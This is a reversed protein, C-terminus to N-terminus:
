YHTAVTLDERMRRKELQILGAREAKRWLLPAGQDGKHGEEPGAGVAGCWEQALPGLFCYQLHPRVLVSYLLPPCDEEGQQGGRKWHLGPYLQDELRCTCVAPEHGAKWGAPGGFGERCLQGWHTRRGTQVRRPNCQHFLSVKWKTKNLRMLYMHDQKTPLQSPVTPQKLILQTNALLHHSTTNSSTCWDTPLQITLQTIANCIYLQM